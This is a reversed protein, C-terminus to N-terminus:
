EGNVLKENERRRKAAKNRSSTYLVLAVLVGLFITIAIHVCAVAALLGVANQLLDHLTYRNLM